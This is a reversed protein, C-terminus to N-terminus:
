GGDLELQRELQARPAFGSNHALVRGDAGFLITTPVTSVRYRRALEDEALANMRLVSVDNKQGAELENLAPEQLQKCQVCQQTSFYLIMKQGAKAGSAIEEPLSPLSNKRWSIYLRAILILSAIAGLILVTIILRETM